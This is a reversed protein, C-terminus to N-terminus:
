RFAHRVIQKREPRKVPEWQTQYGLVLRSSTAVALTRLLPSDCLRGENASIIEEYVLSAKPCFFFADADLAAQRFVIGGLNEFSWTVPNNARGLLHEAIADGALHVVKFSHWGMIIGLSVVNV